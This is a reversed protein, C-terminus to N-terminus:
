HNESLKYALWNIWKFFDTLVISISFIRFANNLLILHVQVLFELTNQSLIFPLKYTIKMIEVKPLGAAASQELLKIATKLEELSQHGRSTLLLKAHRYQAQRHGGVAAQWYHYLAKPLFFCVFCFCSFWWLVLKQRLLLYWSKWFSSVSLSIFHETKIRVKEKDKRVGRGKEYCVGTNFHAKSYGQQAATAFCMFADEYNGSKVSELGAMFLFIFINTISLLFCICNM